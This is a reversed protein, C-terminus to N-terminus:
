TGGLPRIPLVHTQPRAASPFRQLIDKLSAGFRRELGFTLIQVAIGRQVAVAMRTRIGRYISNALAARQEEPKFPARISAIEQSLDRFHDEAASGVRGGPTFVLPTLKVAQDLLCDGSNNKRHKENEAAIIVSQVTAGNDLRAATHPDTVKVDTMRFVGKPTIGATDPRRRDVADPYLNSVETASVWSAQREIAYEERM